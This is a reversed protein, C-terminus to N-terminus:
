NLDLVKQAFNLHQVLRGNDAYSRKCPLCTRQRSKVEELEDAGRDKKQGKQGGTKTLCEKEEHEHEKM